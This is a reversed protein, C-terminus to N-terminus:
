KAYGSIAAAMRGHSRGVPHDDDERRHHDDRTAGASRTRFATPTSSWCTSTTTATSSSSRTRAGGEGQRGPDLHRRVPLRSLRRPQGRQRRGHAQFRAPEETAGAALEILKQPDVHGGLKSVTAVISPTYKAAEPGNDVIAWYAGAPTDPGADAWGDPIPLNITPAGPDGRHVPTATIKSDKFYSAITPNPGDPPSGRRWKRSRSRATSSTADGLDRRDLHQEAREQQQAPFWVRGAHDIDRRHRHGDRQNSDAENVSAGTSRRDRRLSLGRAACRGRAEHGLGIAPGLEARKSRQTRSSRLQQPDGAVLRIRRRRCAVHDAAPLWM